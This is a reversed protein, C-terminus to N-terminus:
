FQFEPPISVPCGFIGAIAIAIGSAIGYYSDDCLITEAWGYDAIVAYRATLAPTGLHRVAINVPRSGNMSLLEIPDSAPVLQLDKAKTKTM